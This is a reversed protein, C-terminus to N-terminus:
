IWCGDEGYNRERWAAKALAHDAEANKGIDAEVQIRPVPLVMLTRRRDEPDEADGIGYLRAEEALRAYM